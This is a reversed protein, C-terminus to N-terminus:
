KVFTIQAIHYNRIQVMLNCIFDYIIAFFIYASICCGLGCGKM